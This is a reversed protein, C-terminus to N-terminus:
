AAYTSPVLLRPKPLDTDLVRMAAEEGAKVMYEYDAQSHGFVLAGHTPLDTHVLIHRSTDIDYAHPSPQVTLERMYMAMDVPNLVKTPLQRVRGLRSVIATTPSFETPNFHYIAGDVLIRGDPLFVPRFVGPVAGTGTLAEVLDIATGRYLVAKRNVVDFSLLELDPHPKLGFEKVFQAMLKELTIFTGTWFALPDFWAIAQLAIMPDLYRNRRDIFAKAIEKGSMGNKSMTAVLGGVSVGLCKGTKIGLREKAILYGAHAPGKSGGGGLVESYLLDPEHKM